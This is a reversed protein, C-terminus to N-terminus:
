HQAPAAPAPAPAPAPAGAAPPAAAPAPAVSAPATKPKNAPAGASKAAEFPSRAVVQAVTQELANMGAGVLGDLDDVNVPTAGAAPPTGAIRDSHEKLLKELQGVVTQLDQFARLNFKPPNSGSMREMLKRDLDSFFAMSGSRYANWDDTIKKRSAPVAWGAKYEAVHRSAEAQVSKLSAVFEKLDDAEKDYDQQITEKYRKLRRQYAAGKAGIFLKQQVPDVGPASLKATFEGWLPKDNEDAVKGFVALHDKGVEATFSKEFSMRNVMSGAVGSLALTVVTKEPLNSAVYYKAAAEPDLQSEDIGRAQALQLKNGGKGKIAEIMAERDDASVDLDNPLPSSIFFYFAGGGLVSIGAVLGVIVGARRAVGQAKSSVVVRGTTGTNIMKTNGSRPIGAPKFPKPAGGGQGKNVLAMLKAVIGQFGSPPPAQLHPDTPEDDTGLSASIAMGPRTIGARANPRSGDSPKRMSAVAPVAAVPQFDSWGPHWLMADSPIEGSAAYEKLKALSFLGNVRSGIRLTWVEENLGPEPTVHAESAMSALISGSENAGSALSFPAPTAAEAAPAPAAAPAASLASLDAPAAAPAADAEPASGQQEALLQALSVSGEGAVEPQFSGGSGAGAAAAATTSGALAPALEPVTELPVWEAMGDKWSLSQGNVLGASVKEAVEAVTFPGEHHDTLYIFWIKEQDSM